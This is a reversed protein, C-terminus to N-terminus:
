GFPGYPPKAEEAQIPDTEAVYLRHPEGVRMM